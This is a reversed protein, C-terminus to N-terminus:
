EGHAESYGPGEELVSEPPELHDLIFQNMKEQDLFYADERTRVHLIHGRSKEGSRGTWFRVIFSDYNGMDPIGFIRRM